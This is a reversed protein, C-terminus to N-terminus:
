KLRATFFRWVLFGGFLSLVGGPIALLPAFPFDAMLHALPIGAIGVLTALVSLALFAWARAASNFPGLRFDDDLERNAWLLFRGTALVALSLPLLILAVIRVIPEGTAIFFSNSLTCM